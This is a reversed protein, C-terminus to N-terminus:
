QFLSYQVNAPIYEHHPMTVPVVLNGIQYVASEQYRSAVIIETGDAHEDFLQKVLEPNNNDKSLHSLLLHSMYEPKHKIFLELAQTNSLHGRGGSIRRKLHYPYRGGALMQEDYNAELFAAHCQAFNRIVHECASGIDTIVGINIDGCSVIFSHPEAADHFKPFATITINGIKVPHYAVFPYVMQPNLFQRGTFTTRPTLYVPLQYKKALVPIGSIHDSHEHSIFVAKVLSMSLGLRAMRKETERCSIGADILVAEQENGVYYCNGNSGSNLSAIFVCM